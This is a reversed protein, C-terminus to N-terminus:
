QKEGGAGRQAICEEIGGGPDLMGQGGHDGPAGAIGALV